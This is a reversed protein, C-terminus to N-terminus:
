CGDAVWQKAHCTTELLCFVVDLKGKNQIVLRPATEYQLGGVEAARPLSNRAPEQEILKESGVLFM